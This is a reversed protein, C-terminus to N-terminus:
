FQLTLQSLQGGMLQAAAGSTSMHFNFTCNSTNLIQTWLLRRYACSQQHHLQYPPILIHYNGFDKHSETCCAFVQTEGPFILHSFPITPGWYSDEWYKSVQRNWSRAVETQKFYFINSPVNLTDSYWNLTYFFEKKNLSFIRLVQFLQQLKTSFGRLM